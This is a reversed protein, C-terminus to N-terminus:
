ARGEFKWKLWTILRLLIPFRRLVAKIVIRYPIEGDSLKKQLFYIQSNKSRLLARLEESNVSFDMDDVKRRVKEGAILWSEEQTMCHDQSQFELVTNSADNRINYVSLDLHQLTFDFEATQALRLLFDYDEVRNLESDFYLDQKNCRKVALCYCHIPIFNGDVLDLKTGKSYPRDEKLVQGTKADILRRLCGSVSVAAQSSKLNAVHLECFRRDLADDYDLFSVYDGTAQQLGATALISRNDEVGPTQSHVVRVSGRLVRKNIFVQLDSLQSESFNGVSLIWEIPQYSQSLVSAIATDMQEILEYRHMRTILSYVGQNSSHEPTPAQELKSLEVVRYGAIRVSLPVLREWFVIPSNTAPDYQKLVSQIAELRIWYHGSIPCQFDLSLPGLGCQQIWREMLLHTNFHHHYYSELHLDPAVLGLLRDTRFSRAVRAFHNPTLFSEFVLRNWQGGRTMDPIRNNIAPSMNVRDLCLLHGVIDAKLTQATKLSKVFHDFCGRHQNIHSYSVGVFQTSIKLLNEPWRSALCIHIPTGLGLLRNQLVSWDELSEVWTSVVVGGM